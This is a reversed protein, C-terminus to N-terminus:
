SIKNKISANRFKKEWFFGYKKKFSKTMETSAKKHYEEISEVTNKIKYSKNPEWDVCIKSSCINILNNKNAIFILEPGIGHGRYLDLNFFAAKEERCKNLLEHSVIYFILQPSEITQSKQINKPHQRPIDKLSSKGKLSSIILGIKNSYNKKLFFVEEEIVTKYQINDLLSGSNNIILYFENPFYDMLYTLGIRAQGSFRINKPLILNSSIAKRITSGNDISLIDTFGDEILRKYIVDTEDPLNYNCILPTIM